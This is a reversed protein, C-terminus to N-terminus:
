CIASHTWGCYEPDESYAGTIDTVIDIDLKGFKESFTKPYYSQGIPSINGEFPIGFEESIAVAEDVLKVAQSLKAHILDIKEDFLKRFEQELESLDVKNM